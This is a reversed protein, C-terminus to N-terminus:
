SVAYKNERNAWKLKLREIRASSYRQLWTDQVPRMHLLALAWQKVVNEEMYLIAHGPCSKFTGDM